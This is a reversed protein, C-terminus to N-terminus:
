EDEKPKGGVLFTLRHSSRTIAVYRTNAEQQEEDANLAGGEFVPTDIFCVDAAELGKAGHVTSLNVRRPDIQRRYAAPDNADGDSFMLNVPYDAAILARRLAAFESKRRALVLVGRCAWDDLHMLYQKVIRVEGLPKNPASRFLPCHDRAVEAVLQPCRHSFSLLLERIGLRRVLATLADPDAGRYFNIAQWRDGVILSRRNGIVRAVFLVQVPTLDQGEDICTVEPEPLWIDNIVPMYIMDDDDLRSYDEISAELAERVLSATTANVLGLAGLDAPRVGLAKARRVHAVVEGGIGTHSIGIMSEVIREVKQPRYRVQVGLHDSWAKLGVGHLTKAEAKAGNPLAKALRAVASRTFSLVLTPVSPQRRVSDLIITSKGTGAFSGVAVSGSGRELEAVIAEAEEESSGLPASSSTAAGFASAAPAVAAGLDERDRLVVSHLDVVSGDKRYRVRGLSPRALRKARARAAQPTHVEQRNEKVRLSGLRPPASKSPAGAASAAKKRVRKRVPAGLAGPAFCGTTFHYGVQRISLRAVARMQDLGVGLHPAPKTHPAYGKGGYRIARALSRLPKEDVRGLGGTASVWTSEISALYASRAEKDDTAWLGIVHIHGWPEHEDNLLEIDRVTGVFAQHDKWVDTGAVKNMASVVARYIDDVLVVGQQTGLVLTFSAFSSAPEKGYAEIIRRINDDVERTDGGCFLCGRVRCEAQTISEKTAHTDDYISAPSGFEGEPFPLRCALLRNCLTLDGELLFARALDLQSRYKERFKGETERKTQNLKKGQWSTPVPTAIDAELRDILDHTDKVLKAVVDHTGEIATEDDGHAGHQHQRTFGNLLEDVYRRFSRIRRSQPLPHLSSNAGVESSSTSTHNDVITTSSSRLDIPPTTPSGPDRKRNKTDPSGEQVPAVPPRRNRRSM